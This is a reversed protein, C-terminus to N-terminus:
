VLDIVLVRKDQLHLVVVRRKPVVVRRKPLVVRRQLVLVHLELVLVGLQLLLDAAHRVVVVDHIMYGVDVDVVEALLVEVVHRGAEELVGNALDVVGDGAQQLVDVEVGLVGLVVVHAHGVLAVFIEQNPAVALPPVLVPPLHEVPEDLVPVAM